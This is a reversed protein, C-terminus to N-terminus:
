VQTTSLANLSYDEEEVFTIDRRMNLSHMTFDGGLNFEAMIQKRLKFITNNKPLTIVKEQRDFTVIIDINGTATVNPKSLKGQIM